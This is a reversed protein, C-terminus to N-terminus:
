MPPAQSRPHREFWDAYRDALPAATLGHAFVSLGVTLYVVVVILHEHPLQSEEIIIVAFVISALGRPGFWGLFGLTPLRAHSDLMAIAVPIFRVVTLSLVAYLALEWSLEGLAPGLLIAGFIVFTVGSLVSGVEETLRNMEGPDREIVGRFVIGAVFAAIFGSGDLASATGYALAAGAAPIVPRWAGDILDRRGAYIVVAGIALAAAVGGVIGYGVEELLLTMGTRGESIHSTVDAAAVAAFLLPVCIGDNLGSEVNLGQRIRTPLRRETVVAQGLAADTPALIVGVIVAEWFTLEGFIVAAALAGLAITLPLGVGLLRLPVSAGRRLARLDISSADAFLVLALTAEALARVTSSTSTIDIEDLVKPGVLLGISVFVIAPTIPSGSLRKSVAAVAILALAVITLSWDM